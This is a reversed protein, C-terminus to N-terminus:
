RVIIEICHLETPTVNNIEFNKLKRYKSRADEVTEKPELSIMHVTFNSASGFIFFFREPFIAPFTLLVSIFPLKDNRNHKTEVESAEIGSTM